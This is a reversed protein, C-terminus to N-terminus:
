SNDLILTEKVQCIQTDGILLYKQLFLNVNEPKPVKTLATAKAYNQGM